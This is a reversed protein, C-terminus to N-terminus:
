PTNGPICMVQKRAAHHLRPELKYIKPKGRMPFPTKLPQPNECIFVFADSIEGEPFNKRYKWQPLCDIVDVCGLLVGNPFQKPTQAAVEPSVLQYYTSLVKEIEAFEVYKATAHIWLRGRHAHYWQRGEHRKIGALLLSAYPQNISLCMGEDSIEMLHSDQLRVTQMSETMRATFASLVDGTPIFELDILEQSSIYSPLNDVAENIVETTDHLYLESAEENKVVVKKGAFDIDMRTQAGRLSKAKDRKDEVEKLTKIEKQTLWKNDSSFYDRDDDIVVTRKACTRDYDLLRNKHAVAAALADQEELKQRLQTARRSNKSLLETERPTVVLAGCTFCSGSGEQSCVIRGCCVCNNVLQHRASINNKMLETSSICPEELGSLSM